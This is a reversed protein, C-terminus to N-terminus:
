KSFALYTKKAKGYQRRLIYNEAKETYTYYNIENSAAKEKEIDTVLKNNILIDIDLNM